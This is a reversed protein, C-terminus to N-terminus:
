RVAPDMVMRERSVDFDKPLFTALADVKFSDSPRFIVKKGLAAAAMMVHVRDTKVMEHCSIMWLWHDLSSAMASIDLNIAPVPLGKAELDTRYAHLVSGLRGPKRYPTFDFMLATDLACAARRTLTGIQRFSDLERAFFLARSAGLAARVGPDTAVFSSPFVVLKDFLSELDQLREMVEPYRDCWASGLIVGVKGGLNEKLANGVTTELVVHERLLARAGAYTLEVGQNGQQPSPRMIVVHDSTSPEGIASLLLARSHEISRAVFM